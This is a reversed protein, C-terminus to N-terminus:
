MGNTLTLYLGILILPTLFYVGGKLPLLQLIKHSYKDCGVYGELDLEHALM